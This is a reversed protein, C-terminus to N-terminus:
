ARVERGLDAIAEAVALERMREAMAAGEILYRIALSDSMRLLDESPLPNETHHRDAM